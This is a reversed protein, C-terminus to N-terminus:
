AQSCDSVIGIIKDVVQEITLHDTNILIADEAAKLPAHERTSDIVDRHRLMEITKELDLTNGRSLEELLRRQARVEISADLYIKLDADPLVVTGIDRGLVVIRGKSAIKRQLETMAVRVGPYVSVESVSGNVENSRIEWTRDKGNILVDFQRGDDVSAPVVDVDLGEALESIAPEDDIQVGTELAECAVARYMIGTDLWVYDLKEAVLAGVTSKGSAAPGDIAIIEPITKEAKDKM